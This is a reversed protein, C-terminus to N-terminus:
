LRNEEPIRQMWEDLISQFEESDGKLQIEWYRKEGAMTMVISLYDLPLVEPFRNAWEIVVVGDWDEIQEELGLHIMEGEELRYWDSHLLNLSAQYEHVIAFSPSVVSEEVGLGNALGQTFCTKGTGLTGDLAICFSQGRRKLVEALFEALKKSEEASRSAIKM